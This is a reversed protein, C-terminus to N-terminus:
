LVHLFFLSLKQLAMSLFIRILDKKELDNRSQIFWILFTPAGPDPEKTRM